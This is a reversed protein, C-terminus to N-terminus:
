KSAAKGADNESEKKDASPVPRGVKESDGAKAAEGAPQKQEGDVNPKEDGPKQAEPPPLKDGKGADPKAVGAKSSDAKGGDAVAAAEVEPRPGTDVLLYGAWFFPHDATPMEVQEDSRKL